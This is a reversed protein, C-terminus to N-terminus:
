DHEEVEVSIAPTEWDVHNGHWLEFVISTEGLSVGEIDIHDIHNEIEIINEPAGEALRARVEFEDGLPITHNDEDLFRIELELEEGIHLHPLSGDWHMGAGTGHTYALLENTARNYVEAAVPEGHEDNHPDTSRDCGTILSIAPSLLFLVMILKNLKM